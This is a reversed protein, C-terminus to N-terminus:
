SSSSRVYDEVVDAKMVGCSHNMERRTGGVGNLHDYSGASGMRVEEVSHADVPSMGRMLVDEVSRTSEDDVLIHEVNVVSLMRGAKGDTQVTDKQSTPSVFVTGAALAARWAQM